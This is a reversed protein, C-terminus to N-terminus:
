DARSGRANNWTKVAAKWVELDAQNEGIPAIGTQSQGNGSLLFIGNVIADGSSQKLEIEVGAIPRDPTGDSSRDIAVVNITYTLDSVDLPTDDYSLVRSRETPEPLNLVQFVSPPNIGGLTTKNANSFTIDHNIDIHRGTSKYFNRNDFIAQVLTIHHNPAIVYDDPVHYTLVFGHGAIGLPPNLWKTEVDFEGIPESILESAAEKRAQEMAECVKSFMYADELGLGTPDVYRIPNAAFPVYWNMGDARIPDMRNWVQLTPSYMRTPTFYWGIVADYLMGQFLNRQTYSDSGIDNWTTPDRFSVEGYSTYVQHQLAAGATSIVSTTNYNADCTFYVRAPTDSLDNDRLVAANVYVPSYVDREQADEGLYKELVQGATSYYLTTTVPEHSEDLVTESVRRGLGDYSYGKLFMGATDNGDYRDAGTLRNLGDYAHTVHFSESRGAIRRPVQKGVLPDGRASGARGCAYEEPEIITSGRMTTVHERYGNSGHYRMNPPGARGSVFCKKNGEGGSELM